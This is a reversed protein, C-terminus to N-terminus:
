KIPAAIDCGNKDAAVDEPTIAEGTIELRGEDVWKGERFADDKLPPQVLYQDCGTIYSARGILVGEFGTIKDKAKQGLKM